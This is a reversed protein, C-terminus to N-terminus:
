KKKNLLNLLKEAKIKGEEAAQDLAEKATIKKLYAETTKREIASYLESFQPVNPMVSFSDMSKSIKNQADMAKFEPTDQVTINAPIQGAAAWTISNKTIYSIFKLIAAKKEPSINKQVPIGFTHSSAWMAKKKDGFFHDGSIVGVNMDKFQTAMWIGENIVAVKGQRFMNQVDGGPAPNLDKNHAYKVMKELVEVGEPSNYTAEMGDESIVQGGNQIVGAYFVRSLIFPNNPIAYLYKGDKNFDKSKQIAEEYTRPVDADSILDKNYWMVLQHTDLPIAYNKGEFITKELVNPIINKEKINASALDDKSIETLFNMSKYLPLKDRHFIAVDPASNSQMSIRLKEYYAGGANDISQPKIRISGKNEKNFKIILNNMVQADPGGFPNWFNLDVQGKADGKGSGCSILVLSLLLLVIKKM